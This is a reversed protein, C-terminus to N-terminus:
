LISLIEELLETSARYSVDRSLRDIADGSEGMAIRGLAAAAM